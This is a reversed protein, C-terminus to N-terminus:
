QRDEDTSLICFRLPYSFASVAALSPDPHQHHARQPEPFLQNAGTGSDEPVQINGMGTFWPQLPFGNLLTAADDPNYQNSYITERDRNQVQSWHLEAIAHELQMINAAADIGDPWGALNFMNTIHARYHERALALKEQDQLYYDRNPLGLGNQWLYLIQRQADTADNDAYFAIPTTVGAAALRGFQEALQTTNSVKDIESLLGQLPALGRAQVQSTDMFSRYLNALTHADKTTEASRGPASVDATAQVTTDIIDRIQVETRDNLQHFTGYSSRDAPIATQDIWRANVYGWFDDQPRIGSALENIDFALKGPTQPSAPASPPVTAAVPGDQPTSPDAEELTACASLYLIALLSILSQAWRSACPVTASVIAANTQQPKM